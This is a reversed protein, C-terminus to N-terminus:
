GFKYLVGYNGNPYEWDINRFPCIIRCTGCELCGEYKVDMRKGDWEYVDAPCGAICPRDKCKNACISEDKIRLHPHREDTRYRNLYLKDEIRPV